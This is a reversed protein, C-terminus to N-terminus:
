KTNRLYSAWFYVGVFLAGGVINGLIVPVLNGFFIAPLTIADFDAQTLGADTIAQGSWFSDGAFTKIMWGLPLMFMNAVSHEFGTAVFLSIPGVVAIAKDMLTKGGAALWVALCVAFNALLALFFAQHWAYSVKGLTSNLAVLGWASGNTAHSGALVVLAAMVVSGVFNGLISMVWHIAFPGGKLRGQLAPMVTLTSGTFLDSGSVLVLFLGTSFAVGGILKTLGLPLTAPAGQQTTIFYIFGLAIFAGGTLALLFIQGPTKATKALMADSLGSALAPPAPLVTNPTAAPAATTAKDRSPEPANM